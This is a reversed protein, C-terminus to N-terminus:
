ALVRKVANIVDDITILEMCKRDNCRFKYCPRQCDVEKRVVMCNNSHCYPSFKHIDGPGFLAILPPQMAAAIHMPGTDSAIFLNLRELLASFQKLTFDTATIASKKETLNAIENIMEREGEGGTIIVKYGREEILWHALQTWREKFWRGYPRYTGPNLGVLLDTDSVGRQALFNSIYTKDEEFIPVELTIKEINAGLARAVDLNAEVAHKPENSNERIKFNLFFGRKDTDRGVRYKAGILWFLVAIKFSGIWSSIHELNILMDFRKKRLEKTTKYVKIFAGKKLLNRLSTDRIDLVFLDDIDPCGKILQATRSIVLLGIYADKFRTRLAKLTPTALVLDGIGALQLILIKDIEKIPIQKIDSSKM